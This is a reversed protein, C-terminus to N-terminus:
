NSGEKLVNGTHFAEIHRALWSESDFLGSCYPCFVAGERVRKELYVKYDEETADWNVDGYSNVVNGCLRCKEDISMYRIYEGTEDDFVVFEDTIVDELNQYCPCTSISVEADVGEEKM